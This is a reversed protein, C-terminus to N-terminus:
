HRRRELLKIGFGRTAFPEQLIVELPAYSANVWELLRRGPGAEAGFPGVGFEAHDAHVLAIFDPPSLRFDRLVAEEGRADLDFPTMDLHRTPNPRRALYNLMAGAPLAALTAERPALAEIRELAAGMAADAIEVDPSYGVMADGGSGMPLTKMSYYGHALRLHAALFACVGGLVVGQFVRGAGARVALVRPVVGALCATLLVTAPMALYFGVHYFVPHLGMKALLVTAFVSWLVLTRRGSGLALALAALSAAPLAFALRRWPLPDNPPFAWILAAALALGVWPRLRAAAVSRLDAAAAAACVGAFALSAKGMLWLHAGPHDLGLITRYYPSSWAARGLRPDWAGLVARVSQGLPMRGWFFLLFTAPAVLAGGLFALAPGAARRYGLGVAAAAAAALATEPKTLFLLGFCGGAAACRWRELREQRRSLLFIMALALAVGHTAEHAYPCVFNSNGIGVYQSFSFVGLLVLCAATAALRGCEEALMRYCLATMAALISLNLFVLTRVSTGLARFALANFYPSLPGYNTAIDRYLVKGQALQWPIYLERGFDVRLDPWKGWSWMALSVFSAVLLAPGAWVPLLEDAEATM